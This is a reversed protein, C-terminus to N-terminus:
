HYKYNALYNKMSVNYVNINTSWDTYMTNMDTLMTSYFDSITFESEKTADTEDIVAMDWLEAISLSSSSTVYDDLFQLKDEDGNAWDILQDIVDDAVGIAKLDNTINTQISTESSATECASCTQGSSSRTIYKTDSSVSPSGGSLKENLYDALDERYNNQSSNYDSLGRFESDYTTITGAVTTLTNAKGSKIIQVDMSVGDNATTSSYFGSAAGLYLKNQEINIINWIEPSAGSKNIAILDGLAFKEFVDGYTSNDCYDGSLELYVDSGDIQKKFYIAGSGATFSYGESGAKQGMDSYYFTAPINYSYYKGEHTQTAGGGTAYKIEDFLGSKSTVIPDGTLKDAYLNNITRITGDQYNSISKVIPPYYDIQSTVHTYIHTEDETKNPIPIAFPIPIGALYTIALGIEISLYTVGTEDSVKKSEAVIDSAKGLYLNSEQGNENLIKVSEGPEYYNYKTSKVEMLSDPKNYQDWNGSYMTQKKMQGNMGNLLFRYGQTAWADMTKRYYVIYYDSRNDTKLDLDTYEVGKYSGYNKDFPYDKTTYYEFANIGDHTPASHINRVLIRSYGVSPGPLVSEGIPGSFQSKDNGCAMVQDDSSEDRKNLFQILANEERGEVPENSAVGSSLGDYDIYLYEHGYLMADEGSSEIGPDYTLLRKVRLGGGKKEYPVPLRLYSYDPNVALCITNYEDAFGTAHDILEYIASGIDTSSQGSDFDDGNILFSKECSSNYESMNGRTTKYFEVCADHPCEWNEETEADGGLVVYLSYKSTYPDQEIAVSSVKVFGDIFEANCNDLDPVDTDEDIAYLFKFYAKEARRGNYGDIMIKQIYDKMESMAAYDNAIGLEDLNIYYKSGINGADNGDADGKSGYTEVIEDLKVMAMAKRDQVYTYDDQEYQVHIEGGTPLVIKKLQWAAPDFKNATGNGDTEPTQDLWAFLDDNLDDGNARYSGWRDSANVSYDPEQDLSSASIELDDYKSPYNTTPYKYNFEYPSIKTNSVSGYETWVKKLTLKGSSSNPVNPWTSYDYDFYIRKIIKDDGGSLSKAYLTIKDLKYLKDTGATATSLGASGDAPAEKGDNRSSIEFVAKHTATEISELYYVEKDGSSFSAMDDANDSQKGRSYYLGRYPMRWHYSSNKRTYNFKTWGGFDDDSLGDNTKDIYNPTTVQTLLFATAYKSTRSVGVLQKDSALDTGSYSEPNSAAEVGDVYSIYSSIDKYLLTRNIADDMETPDVDVSLDRENDSYVPLGYVYNNGNKNTISFEGIKDQVESNTRSVGSNDDYTYRKYDNSAGDNEQMQANTHFGICTARTVNGLGGNVKESLSAYEPKLDSSLEATVVDNSPSNYSSYGGLDGIFRFYFDEFEVNKFAYDDVDGENWGEVTLTHGGGIIAEAADEAYNDLDSEDMDENVSADASISATLTVSNTQGLGLEGGFSFSNISGSQKNPRFHGVNASYARFTGSLGEAAVSYMDAAAMPIPLYNDRLNYVDQKEVTYDMVDSSSTAEASHLYGFYDKTSIGNHTSTEQTYSGFIAGGFGVPVCSPYAFVGFRGAISFGEYDQLVTPISNNYLSYTKNTFSSHNPDIGNRSNKEYLKNVGAGFLESIPGIAAKTLPSSTKSSKVAADLGANIASAVWAGPNIEYEYRIEADEMSVKATYAAVNCNLYPVFEMSLGTHNSYAMQWNLGLEADVNAIDMITNVIGPINFAKLYAQTGGVATWNKEIKNFYIAEDGNADDPFGQKNRVVSGPNLTWGFGVWSAEEEPSSGSHYSLSVPYGGGNPGPVELLPINYTFDGTFPDVMQDTAVSEFNSYEPSAPGGTLAFSTYPILPQVLLLFALFVSTAKKVFTLLRTM